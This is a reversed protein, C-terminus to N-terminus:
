AATTIGPRSATPSATVGSRENGGLSATSSPGAYRRLGFPAQSDRCVLFRKRDIPISAMSSHGPQQRRAPILRWDV